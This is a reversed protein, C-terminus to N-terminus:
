YVLLRRELPQKSLYPYSQMYRNTWTVGVQQKGLPNAIVGHTLKLFQFATDKLPTWGQGNMDQEAIRLM